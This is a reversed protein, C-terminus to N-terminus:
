NSVSAAPSPSEATHSTDPPTYGKDGGLRKWHRFLSICCIGGAVAFGASWIFVYRYDRIGDLLMGCLLPSVALGIQFVVSNASFFQGFKAAPLLRTLMALYSALFVGCGVANLLWWFLLGNSDGIFVFGGIYTVVILLNGVLLMRLPHFRDVLAGTIFFVPVQLLMTWAKLKGFEALSLGLTTEYGERNAATAFFVIFTMFPVWACWFCLGQSYVKLYFSHSYCDRCYSVISKFLNRKAPRPEPPPYEGEKVRWAMLIFAFAYLLASGVYIETVHTSVNGFLYRNFLFGGIAGIARYVGVFKGLVEEPIVDKFLFQYGSLIYVNFIIFSSSFLGILGLLLTSHAIGMSELPLAGYLFEAIQESYGLLALSIVVGPTFLLIFPRRRGWRSRFRDSQVGVMPTFIVSLIAPIGATFLGILADSAGAWRLQLPVIAPVTSEMVSLCLDGFLMWLLVTMLATRTYVLTGVKYIKKAPTHSTTVTSGAAIAAANGAAVTSANGAAASAAHAPAATPHAGAATAANEKASNGAPTDSHNTGSM